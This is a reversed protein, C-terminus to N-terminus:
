LLNRSFQVSLLQICYTVNCRFSHNPLHTGRTVGPMHSLHQKFLLCAESSSVGKRPLATLTSKRSSTPNSPPRSSHTSNQYDPCRSLHTPNLTLNTTKVVARGSFTGAHFSLIPRSPFHPAQHHRKLDEGAKSSPRPVSSSPPSYGM